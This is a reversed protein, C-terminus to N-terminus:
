GKPAPQQRKREELILIAADRLQPVLPPEPPDPRRPEEPKSHRYMVRFNFWTLAMHLEIFKVARERVQELGLRTSREAFIKEFTLFPAIMPPGEDDQFLTFHALEHRKKYFKTLRASMRHWMETEIEDAEEFSMLRGVLGLRVEFSIIGDFAAHAKNQQMGSLTVFLASLGLEVM